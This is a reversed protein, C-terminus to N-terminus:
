KAGDKATAPQQAPRKLRDSLAQQKRRQEETWGGPTSTPM